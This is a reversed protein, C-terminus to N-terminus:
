EEAPPPVSSWPMDWGEVGTFIMIPVARRTATHSRADDDARQPRATEGCGPPVQV